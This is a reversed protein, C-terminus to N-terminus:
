AVSRDCLTVKFDPLYSCTGRKVGEFWFTEPEHQWGLILGHQKQFELYRAYNAEWRSRFFKRVGGITRWASKWSVKTRNRHLTGRAHHSKAIKFNRAAKQNVSVVGILQGFRPHNALQEKTWRM